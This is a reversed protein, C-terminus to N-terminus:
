SKRAQTLTILTHKSNQGDFVLLASSTIHSLFPYSYITM